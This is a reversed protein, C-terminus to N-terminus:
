TREELSASVIEVARPEWDFFTVDAGRHLAAFGCLGLGCGLDLVRHGDLRPGALVVAALSEASPWIMGFYPMREDSTDFDEQTMSDILADPDDVVWLGFGRSDADRPIVGESGSPFTEWHVALGAIIRSQTSTM